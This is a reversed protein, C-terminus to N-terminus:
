FQFDICFAVSGDANEYCRTGAGGENYYCDYCSGSGGTCGGFFPSGANWSCGSADGGAPSGSWASGIMVLLASLWLKSKM